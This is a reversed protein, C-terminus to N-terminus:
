KVKLGELFELGEQLEQTLEEKSKGGKWNEVDGAETVYNDNSERMRDKMFDEFGDMANQIHTNRLNEFYNESKKQRVLEAEYDVICDFCKQYAPFVKKDLEKKMLTGCEPCFLPIKGIKKFKDMKTINQKVGNRITWKRGNEEWIDGEVHHEYKKSYGIGETTRSTTNGTILNRARQVDKKSFEKKLVNNNNM